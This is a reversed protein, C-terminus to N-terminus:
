IEGNRTEVFINAENQKQSVVTEASMFLYFIFSNTSVYQPHLRTKKLTVNFRGYECKVADRLAAVIRKEDSIPKRRGANQSFIQVLMPTPFIM